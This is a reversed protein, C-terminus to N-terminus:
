FRRRLREGAVAGNVSTVKAVSGGYRLGDM